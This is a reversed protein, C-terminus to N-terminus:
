KRKSVSLEIVETGQHIADIRTGMFIPQESVSIKPSAVTNNATEHVLGTTGSQCCLGHLAAAYAIVKIMQEHFILVAAM